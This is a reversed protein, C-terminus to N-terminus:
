PESNIGSDDQVKRRRRLMLSSIDPPLSSHFMLCVDLKAYGQATGGEVADVTRLPSASVVIERLM